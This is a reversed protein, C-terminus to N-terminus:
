ERGGLKKNLEQDLRRKFRQTLVRSDMRYVSKLAEETPTQEKLQQILKPYVHRGREMLYGTLAGAIDYQWSKLNEGEFFGEGLGEKGELALRAKLYLNNNPPPEVIHAVHEALGEGLWDDIPVHTRYRHLYAHTLEHALIHHTQRASSRAFAAVHTHGDGFGHCMGGTGRADTDHLDRQFRMYDVRDAFLVVLCRGVFVNGDPDDGLLHATTRYAETLKQSLDQLKDPKLDTLLMFRESEYLALEIGLKAQAKECFARITKAGGEMQEDTLEGWMKPDAVGVYRPSRDPDAEAKLKEIQDALSADLALAQTFTKEALTAGDSHRVLLGGLEMLAQADKEPQELYRWYRDVNPAPIANWLVRHVRGQETKLSFTITDYWAIVGTVKEGALPLTLRVVRDEPASRQEEANAPMFCGLLLVLALWPSSSRMLTMMM